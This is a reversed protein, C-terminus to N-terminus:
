KNHPALLLARVGGPGLHMLADIVSLGAVFSQSKGQPYTPHMYHQYRLAVESAAFAADDQYGEAGGGCLYSDGGVAQTLAILMDTAQGDVELSSSWRIHDTRAGIQEAITRIAHANYHVLRQEANLILPELWAMCSSYHSARAYNAALSKVLKERWPQGPLFEVDDYRRVGHVSRVIPATAWRAEGALLLKVRNSWVGGTKPYQVHDLLVFVDSRALKDFYGLWPFFNPQHMAVLRSAREHTVQMQDSQM